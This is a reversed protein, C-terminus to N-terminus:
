PDDDDYMMLVNYCCCQVISYTMFVFKVEKSTRVFHIEVQEQLLHFLGVLSCNFLLLLSENTLLRAFTLEFSCESIAEKFQKRDAEPTQIVITILSM